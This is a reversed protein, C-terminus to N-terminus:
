SQREDGGVADSGVFQIRRGGSVRCFGPRAEARLPAPAPGGTGARDRGASNGEVIGSLVRSQGPGGKCVEAGGRVTRRPRWFKGSAATTDGPPTPTHRHPGAGCLAPDASAARGRAAGRTGCGHTRPRRRTPRVAAGGSREAGRRRGRRRRGGSGEWRVRPWPSRSAGVAGHMRRIDSGKGASVLGLSPETQGSGPGCCALGTRGRPRAWSREARPGRHSKAGHKERRSSAQKSTGVTKILDGPREPTVELSSTRRQTLRSPPQEGPSSVRATDGAATFVIRVRLSGPSGGGASGLWAFSAAGGGRRGGAIASRM